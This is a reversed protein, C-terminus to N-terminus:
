RNKAIYIMAQTTALAGQASATVIQKLSNKNVDGCAFVGDISTVVEDHTVIYGKEDLELQEKLASTDPYRGIAVFVGDVKLEKEEGRDEFVVGRLKDEGAIKTVKVNKYLKINEYKEVDSIAHGKLKDFSNKALVNVSKCVNSLYIADSVSSDGSGIVAVDKGKFFNGDCVACYSVGKGFFKKEGEVDLERSTSGLALIVTKAEYVKDGCYVKKIKGKLDYNTATSFIFEIGISKAQNYFKQALDFGSIKDFGPYNEIDGISAVQGGPMYKEIIAVRKNARKAYIGATIGAPGGGVILIDFVKVEM